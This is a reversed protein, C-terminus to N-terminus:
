IEGYKYLKVVYICMKVSLHHMAGQDKCQCTVVTFLQLQFFDQSKLCGIFHHSFLVKLCLFPQEFLLVPLGVDVHLFAEAGNGTQRLM